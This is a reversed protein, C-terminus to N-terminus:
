SAGGAHCSKRKSSANWRTAGSPAFLAGGGREPVGGGRERRHPPPRHGLRPSPIEEGSGSRIERGGSRSGHEGAQPRGQRGTGPVPRAHAADMQPRAPQPLSAVRSRAPRPCGCGCGRSATGHDRLSGGQGQSQGGEVRVAETAEDTGEVGGECRARHKKGESASPANRAGNAPGRTNHTAGHGSSFLSKTIIVVIRRALLRRIWADM